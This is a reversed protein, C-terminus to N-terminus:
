SPTAGPAVRSAAWGNAVASAVFMNRSGGLSTGGNVSAPRFAVIDVSMLGLGVLPAAHVVRLDDHAEVDAGRRDLRTSIVGSPTSTACPRAGVTQISVRVADLRIRVRHGVRCDVREGVCQRPYRSAVTDARPTALM